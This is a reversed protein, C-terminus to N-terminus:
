LTADEKGLERSGQWSMHHRQYVLLPSWGSIGLRPMARKDRFPLEDEGLLTGRGTGPTEEFLSSVLASAGRTGSCKEM